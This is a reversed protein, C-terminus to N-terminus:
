TVARPLLGAAASARALVPDAISAAIEAGIALQREVEAPDAELERYQAQVPRLYEVVAEAVATKFTGYGGDGFEEEVAAITRGTVAAHIEILNSVGPKTERDHRVRTESDTVASKLKKTITKADEFVLITGQPSEESKSMKKTPDQLDMIRAGLPPFTAKPITFVNQITGDPRRGFQHNFRLAVDRTLEVHQRQDDGVPVEDTDYLLIDAAMLVPYDFLGVSVSEQGGAGDKTSKEKFQTMRRLEGFTATCNLLWTLEAHARVHSQVFLLCRQPDLGAALLMTALRRTAETLEVPDYPATMAHLDVVCFVADHNTAAESGAAPQDDVWRRVAGLYNGLHMEGTPKIGSFVRAVVACV